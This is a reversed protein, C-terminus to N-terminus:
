FKFSWTVSPLIPFLYVMRSSVKGTELSTDFYIFYPNARNYINYVSFNWTSTWKDTKKQIYNLSIDARHYAPMRLTNIKDYYDIVSFVPENKTQNAGIFYAFRGTPLTFANGTGYVFVFNFKWKANIDHMLVLSIDHRRDYRYYFSQGYNLQDFTRTTKSWTYGIWGTTKGENKRLLFEAGYSLGKGLIVDREINQNLFVQAGPRLEVQNNMPKYYLESSAEWHQKNFNKFYGLTYQNSNQPKVLQSSPIWLDTPLTASSSSALHLFQNTRSYAAKLSSSPTLTYRMNIRPELVPYMVISKGSKFYTTSDTRENFENYYVKNYPGVQNFLTARLGTEFLFREGLSWEASGYISSEHAYQKPAGGIVPISNFSAAFEGPRFTHYIHQFGTRVIINDAVYLTHDSKLTFDRIGSGSTINVSGFKANTEFRFDSFLFSTNSFWRSNFIHNWRLGATANGWKVGFTFDSGSTSKFSFEDRGFYSSFFLRDNKGLIWNAKVNLDYFNYGNGKAKSPLFPQALVDIYTRRAAVMYSAVDKKIPGELQLKSSILGIGGSGSFKKLNGERQTVDIISSLRGGYKAPMGGGKIVEINGVAEANFVSFFGLLHMPNYLVAEDLLVLNQDPGGGRVYLGSNGEGGSKIGPLLTLTKLIDPEGLVAPLAKVIAPSLEIKGIEVSQVKENIREAVIEVEKIQISLPALVLDIVLDSRLDIEKEVSNFGVFSWKIRHKGAPLRFSYYGYVNARVGKTTGVKVVTAGVLTEGSTSDSLTGSITYSQGLSLFPICFLFLLIVLTLKTKHNQM